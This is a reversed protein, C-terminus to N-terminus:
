INLNASLECSIERIKKSFTEERFVIEFNSSKLGRKSTEAKKKSTQSRIQRKVNNVSQYLLEFSETLVRSIFDLFCSIKILASLKLHLGQQFQTGQKM